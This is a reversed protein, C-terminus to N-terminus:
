LCLDSHRCLTVLASYMVIITFLLRKIRATYVLPKKAHGPLFFLITLVNFFIAIVYTIDNNFVILVFSIFAFTLKAFVSGLVDNHWRMHGDRHYGNLQFMHVFYIAAFAFSVAASIHYLITTIM